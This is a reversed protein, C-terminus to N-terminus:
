IDIIITTPGDNILSVEMYTRFKGTAVSINKTKLCQVFKEYYHEAKEPNAAAIFSPRNGQNCDGYLTFQSVVLIEGSTDIISLNLKENSDEFIRLKSIKEALKQIIDETDDRHIALFILLGSKISGIIKGGSTVSAKSVRQIVARM